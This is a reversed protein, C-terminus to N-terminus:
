WRDSLFGVQERCAMSRERWSPCLNLFMRATMTPSCTFYIVKQTASSQEAVGQFVFTLPDCNELIVLTYLLEYAFVPYPEAM